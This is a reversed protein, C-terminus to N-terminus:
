FISVTAGVARLKKQIEEAEDKPLGEAILVPASDAKKKAEDLTFGRLERLMKIVLVRNEGPSLLSVSFDTQREKWQARVWAPPGGYAPAAMRRDDFEDDEPKKDGPM